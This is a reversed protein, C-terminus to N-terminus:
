YRLAAVGGWSCPPRVGNWRSTSTYGKFCQDRPLLMLLVTTQDENGGAVVRKKAARKMGQAINWPHIKGRGDLVGTGDDCSLISGVIIIHKM